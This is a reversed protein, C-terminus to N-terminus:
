LPMLEEKAEPELVYPDSENTITTAALCVSSAGLLVIVSAIALIVEIRRM